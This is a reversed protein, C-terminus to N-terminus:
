RRSCSSSARRLRALLQRRPMVAGCRGTPRSPGGGSGAAPCARRPRAEGSGASARARVVVRGTIEGAHEVQEQAPHAAGLRRADVPRRAADEGPLRRRGQEILQARREGLSRRCSSAPALLREVNTLDARSVPHQALEVVGADEVRGINVDRPAQGLERALSSRSTASAARARRERAGARGRAVDIEGRDALGDADLGLSSASRAASVHGSASEHALLSAPLTRTASPSLPRSELRGSRSM